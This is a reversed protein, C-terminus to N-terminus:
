AKPLKGYMYWFTEKPFVKAVEPEWIFAGASLDAQMIKDLGALMEHDQSSIGKADAALLDLIIRRNVEYHYRDYNASPSERYDQIFDRWLMLRAHFEQGAKRGWASRWQAHLDDIQRGLHEIQAQQAPNQALAEARRRYLILWGLTLRPYPPEGSPPTVVLLWYIENSLLYHELGDVGAQVFRLAYECSSM